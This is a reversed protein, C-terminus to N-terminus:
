FESSFALLMEGNSSCKGIGNLGIVGRWNEVERGVRANFDGAIILKDTILVAKVIDRVTSYFGEKTEEPNTTTLAYASIILAYLKKMTIIRDNVGTPEQELCQVISNKIAFGMGAERKEAVESESWVFTYSNEAISDYFSLRTEGLTSIDIDFRSLEKAALTTQREPRKSGARDM